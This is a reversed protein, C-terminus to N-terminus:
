IQTIQDARLLALVDSANQDPHTIETMQRLLVGNRMILTTRTLLTTGDADFTTLGLADTLSFDQDSLIVFPLHLRAVMEAQYASDQTSMGFVHAVGAAVLDDFYDRFGCNQSTCGRAGPIQDWGVLPATNPPSTRPYAYVVTIGRLDALCVATGDSAALTVDPITVGPALPPTMRGM